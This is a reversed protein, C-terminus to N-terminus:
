TKYKGTRLSQYMDDTVRVSTEMLVADGEFCEKIAPYMDLVVGVSVSEENYYERTKRKEPMTPLQQLSITPVHLQQYIYILSISGHNCSVLSGKKNKSESCSSVTRLYRRKMM